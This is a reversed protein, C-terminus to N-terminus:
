GASLGWSCACGISGGGVWKVRRRQVLLDVLEELFHRQLFFDALKDLVRSALGSPWSGAAGVVLVHDALALDAGQEINGPRTFGVCQLLDRYLIGTQMNRQNKTQVENVAVASCKWDREPKSCSPLWRQHFLCRTDRRLFRRCASDAPGKRRHHINRPVRAPPADSFAGAFIREETRRNRSSVNSTILSLM